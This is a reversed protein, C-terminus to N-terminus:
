FDSSLAQMCFYSSLVVSSDESCCCLCPLVSPSFACCFCPLPLSLSLLSGQLVWRCPLACTTKDFQQMCKNTEPEDASLVQLPTHLTVDRKKLTVAGAQRLSEGGSEGEPLLFSFVHGDTEAKALDSFLFGMMQSHLEKLAQQAEPTDEEEPLKTSPWFGFCVKGLESQKLNLDFSTTSLYMPTLRKKAMGDRNFIVPLIGRDPEERAVTPPILTNFADFFFDGTNAHPGYVREQENLAVGSRPDVKAQYVEEPRTKIAQYGKPWRRCVRTILHQLVDLPKRYFLTFERLKKTKRDILNPSEFTESHFSPIKTIRGENVMKQYEMQFKRRLTCVAQRTEGMGQRGGRLLDEVSFEPDQLMNLLETAKSDSLGIQSVVFLFRAQSYSIHKWEYESEGALPDEGWM